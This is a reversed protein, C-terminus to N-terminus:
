PTGFGYFQCIAPPLQGNQCLQEVGVVAVPDEFILEIIPGGIGSSTIIIPPPAVYNVIGEPLPDLVELEDIQGFTILRPAGFVSPDTRDIGGADIVADALDADYNILLTFGPPLIIENEAGPNIYTLGYLSVIEMQRLGDAHDITRLTITSGVRISVNNIVLDVEILHPAQVYLMSNAFACDSGEFRTRFYLSQMPSFQGAELVPLEDLEVDGFVDAPLWGPLEDRILEDPVMRRDQSVPASVRVWEGDESIADALVTTGAAVDALIPGDEPADLTAQRLEADEVTVLELADGNPLFVDESLV